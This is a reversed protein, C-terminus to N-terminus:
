YNLDWSQTLPVIGFSTKEANSPTQLAIINHSSFIKM